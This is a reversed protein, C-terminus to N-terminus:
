MKILRRAKVDSVGSYIKRLHANVELVQVIVAPGGKAFLLRAMTPPAVDAIEALARLVAHRVAWLEALYAKLREPGCRYTPPAPVPPLCASMEVLVHLDMELVNAREVVPEMQHLLCPGGLCAGIDFACPGVRARPAACRHLPAAVIVASVTRYTM